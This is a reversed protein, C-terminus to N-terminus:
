FITMNKLAILDFRYNVRHALPITAVTKTIRTTPNVGPDGPDNSIRIDELGESQLDGIDFSHM